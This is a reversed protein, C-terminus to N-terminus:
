VAPASTLPRFRGSVFRGLIKHGAADERVLKSPDKPYLSYAYVKRSQGQFIQARTLGPKAMAKAMSAVVGSAREKPLVQLEGSRKGIKLAVLGRRPTEVRHEEAFGNAGAKFSTKRRKRRPETSHAM